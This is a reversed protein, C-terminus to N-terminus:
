FSYRYGINFKSGTYHSKSGIYNGELYLHGNDNIKVNGGIAAEIGDGNLTYSESSNNLKYNIDNNFEHLYATKLYLNTQNDIQTGLKLGVRGVISNYADQRIQLGNSAKTNFRGVRSYTLQAQPEIYVSRNDNDELTYRKGIETSLNFVRTQVRGNLSNDQSDKLNYHTRHQGLKMSSDIYFSNETIFLNYVGGYWSTSTANGRIYEPKATTHGAFVGVFNMNKSNNSIDWDNGLQFGYYDMSNKALNDNNRTKYNGGYTRGWTGSVDQVTSSLTLDGMRQNLTTMEAQNILYPTIALGTISKATDNIIPKVPHVVGPKEPDVVGPNEKGVLVWNNQNNADRVVKYSYGGVEIDQESNFKATANIGSHDEILVVKEKGTTNQSGDNIVQAIHTGKSSKEIFLKSSVQNEVDATFTYRGNDGSLNDVSISSFDNGRTLFVHSNNSTSLSDLSSTGSANWTSDKGTLDVRITGSSNTENFNKISGNISSKGGLYLDIM